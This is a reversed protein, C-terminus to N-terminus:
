EEIVTYLSTMQHASIVQCRSDVERILVFDYTAVRFFSTRSKSFRLEPHERDKVFLLEWQEAGVFEVVEKWNDGTFQIADWIPTIGQVKM